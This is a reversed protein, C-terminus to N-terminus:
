RVTLSTDQRRRDTNNVSKNVYTKDAAHGHSVQYKYWSESDTHELCYAPARVM